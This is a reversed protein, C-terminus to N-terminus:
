FANHPFSRGPGWIIRVAGTGGPGGNIYGGGGGGGYHGGDGGDKYGPTVYSPTEGETGFSGGQGGTQGAGNGSSSLGAAGSNINVGSLGVGGGGAGAGFTSNDADTAGGGGGGGGGASGTAALPLPATSNNASADGGRGGVALYGAAGGGGAGYGSGGTLKADGGAGGSYCTATASTGVGGGGGIDSSSGAGGGAQILTDAFTSAAGNSNQAGGAGVLVAITDGPNVSINNQYCLAGGGGAGPNSNAAGGGGAGVVVVSISTVCTPVTFTYAGASDYLQAGDPLYPSGGVTFWQGAGDSLLNMFGYPGICIQTLGDVTDPTSVGITATNGGIKKVSVVSSAPVEDSYPLMVAHDAQGSLTFLKSMDSITINHSPTTVPVVAKFAGATSPAAWKMGSSQSSDATLVQGDIGVPLNAPTNASTFVVLDGKAAGVSKAIQADNTVNGLGVHSSDIIEWQPAQSATGTGTSTLVHKSSSIPAALRSRSGLAGGYILDGLESMPSLADFANVASTQGTGGKDIPVTNLTLVGANSLAADGSLSVAAALSGSSGVWINGSALTSGAVSGLKNNFATWDASALYGSNTGTAAGLATKVDATVLDANTWNTGDYRIYNGTALTDISLATGSLKSANVGTLNAGSVAPLKAAEDLQVLNSAATGASLTAATGLGSIDTNSLTIAGTRGAVTTVPASAPMQWSALGNADSTLVKGTGENGDVIKLVPSGTGSIELHTAPSTTGIGVNGNLITNQSVAGLTVTTTAATGINTAATFNAAPTLGWTGDGRLFKTSSGHLKPLLGHASTTANATTNDAFSFDSEVVAGFTPNGSANGHLVTSATGQNAFDASALELTIDSGLSKGNVARATTLLSSAAPGDVLEGSGNWQALNGNTVAGSSKLYDTGSVAASFASAGNGKLLGTLTTAGTGGQAVPVTGTLKSADMGAIKADTVAADAIKSTTVAGAGIVTAGLTGTVDGALAGTGLAKISSGDWYKIEGSDSDFWTRGTKTVDGSWGSTDPNGSHVGLGLYAGSALGVSGDGALAAYKSGHEHLSSADVVGATGFIADMANKSVSYASGAGTIQVFDVPNLGQLTEAVIAQPVSAIVQDSLQTQGGSWNVTLRLKRGDGAAPTYGGACNSSGVARIEGRNSFIESVSKGPDNGSRTGTGVPFAFIGNTASLDVESRLEEYLLCNGDQSYIGAKFDVQELVPAENDDFLQGQLQFGQFNTAAIVWAPNVALSIVLMYRYFHLM